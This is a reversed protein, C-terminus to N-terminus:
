WNESDTLDLEEGCICKVTVCTGLGTPTFVYSLRGGIAGAYTSCHHKWEDHQRQQDASLGFAVRPKGPRISITPAPIDSAMAKIQAMSGAMQTDVQEATPTPRKSLRDMQNVLWQPCKM